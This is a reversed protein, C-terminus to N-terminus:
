AAQTHSGSPAASAERAIQQICSGQPDCTL